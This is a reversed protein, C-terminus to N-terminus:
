CIIVADFDGQREVDRVFTDIAQQHHNLM